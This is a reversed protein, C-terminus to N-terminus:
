MLFMGVVWIKIVYIRSPFMFNMDTVKSVDWNGIHQNFTNASYFMESM